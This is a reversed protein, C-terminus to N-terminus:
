VESETNVVDMTLKGNIVALKYKLGTTEDTLFLAVKDSNVENIANVISTRNSTNLSDLDGIQIRSTEDKIEYEVSNVNIKSIDAM